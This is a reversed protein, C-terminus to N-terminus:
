LGQYSHLVRISYEDTELLVTESAAYSSPPIIDQKPIAELEPYQTNASRTTSLTGHPMICQSIAGWLVRRNSTHLFVWGDTVLSM